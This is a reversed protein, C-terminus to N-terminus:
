RSEVTLALLTYIFYLITFCLPFHICVDMCIKINHVTSGSLLFIMGNKEKWWNFFNPDWSVNKGVEHASPSTQPYIIRSKIHEDDTRRLSFTQLPPIQCYRSFHSSMKWCFSRQLYFGRLYIEYNFFLLLIRSNVPEWKGHNTNLTRYYKKESCM